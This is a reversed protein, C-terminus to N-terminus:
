PFENQLKNISNEEAEVGAPLDNIKLSLAM